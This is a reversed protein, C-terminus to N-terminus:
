IEDYYVEGLLKDTVSSLTTDDIKQISRHLINEAATKPQHESVWLDLDNELENARNLLETISM